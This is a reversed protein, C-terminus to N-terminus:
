VGVIQGILSFSLAFVDSGEAASFLRTSTFNLVQLDQPRLKVSLDQQQFNVVNGPFREMM